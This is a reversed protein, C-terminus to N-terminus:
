ILDGSQIVSSPNVQWTMTYQTPKNMIVNNTKIVAAGGTPTTNAVISYQASSSINLLEVKNLVINGSGLSNYNREHFRINCGASGNQKVCRVNDLKLTGGVMRYLYINGDNVSSGNHLNTITTNKITFNVNNKLNLLWINAVGNYGTEGRTELNDISFEFNKQATINGFDYYIIDRFAVSVYRAKFIFNLPSSNQGYGALLHSTMTTPSNEVYFTDGVIIAELCQIIDFISPCKSSANLPTKAIITHCNLYLKQTNNGQDLSIIPVNWNQNNQTVEIYRINAHLVGSRLSIAHGLNNIKITDINLKTLLSSIVLATSGTTYQGIIGTEISGITINNVSQTNALYFGVGRKSIIKNCKFNFEFAYSQVCVGGFSNVNTSGICEITDCEISIKAQEASIYIGSYWANIGTPPEYFNQIIASGTIKIGKNLPLDGNSICHAAISDNLLIAGPMFHLNVGDILNIVQNYTGPNIVVLGTKIDILYEDWTSGNNSSLYLKTNSVLYLNNNSRFIFDSNDFFVREWTIGFDNSRDLGYFDNDYRIMFIYGNYYAMQTPQITSDAVKIWIDGDSTKYTYEGDDGLFSIFYINEIKTYSDIVGNKFFSISNEEETIRYTKGNYDNLCYFYNGIFYFNYFYGDSGITQWTLGFDKSRVLASEEESIFSNVYISDNTSIDFNDIYYSQLITEWTLGDDLSKLLRYDVDNVKISVFLFNNYSKISLIQYNIPKLLTNSGSFLVYLGDNSGIYINNKYLFIFMSSGSFIEEWTEGMDSSRFIANSTKSYIFFNDKYLSGSVYQADLKKWTLGYDISKYIESYMYGFLVGNGCYFINSLGYSFVHKWTLCGDESRYLGFSNKIFVIRDEIIVPYSTINGIYSSEIDAVKFIAEQISEGENVVAINKGNIKNKLLTTFVEETADLIEKNTHIHAKTVAENIDDDSNTSSVFTDGRKIPIKGEDISDNVILIKKPVDSVGNLQNIVDGKLQLIGEMITLRKSPDAKGRAEVEHYYNGAQLNVTDSSTRKITLRTRNKSSDYDIDIDNLESRKEFILQSSQEKDKKFGYTLNYDRFDGPITVIIPDSDERM